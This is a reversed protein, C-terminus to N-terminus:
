ECPSTQVCWAVISKCLLWAMEADKDAIHHQRRLEASDPVMFRVCDKLGLPGTCSRGKADVDGSVDRIWNCLSPDMTCIGGRVARDWFELEEHLGCRQLEAAIVGADFEIQHAVLRAGRTFAERASALFINLADTLPLGHEEVFAQTVGHKATGEATVKFNDPTVYISNTTPAASRIDGVAWGIQIVRLSEMTPQSVRAPFGHHGCLWASANERIIDHTEIDFAFVTQTGKFQNVIDPPAQFPIQEVCRTLDCVKPVPSTKSKKNNGPATLELSFTNKTTM